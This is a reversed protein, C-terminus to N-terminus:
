PAPSIVMGRKNLNKPSLTHSLPTKKGFFVEREGKLM